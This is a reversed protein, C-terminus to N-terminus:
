QKSNHWWFSEPNINRTLEDIEKQEDDLLTLDEHEATLCDKILQELTTAGPVVTDIPQNLLWKLALRAPLAGWAVPKMITVGVGRDRCLPILANLPEREVINMPVLIIEFDFKELALILLRSQHSTCGIHRILGQDRAEVLAELAGGSGLRQDLDRRDELGHLFYNDIYNTKLSNLSEHIHKAAKDKKKALTKSSIFVRRRNAGLGEVLKTESETYARATDFYNVGYELAKKVIELPQKTKSSDGLFGCGLGIISVKFGTKGLERYQM